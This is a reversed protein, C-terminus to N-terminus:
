YGAVFLSNYIYSKYSETLQKDECDDLKGHCLYRMAVNAKYFDSMSIAAKELILGGLFSIDTLAANKMEFAYNSTITYQTIYEPNKYDFRYGGAWPLGPQHDGFYIFLLPSEVQKIYDIFALTASNLQDIRQLYDSFQGSFNSDNTKELIRYKDPTDVAYPGHEAMSLVFIFRPKDSKKALIVKTYELMARSPIAWLNSNKPADHGLDQPQFFHHLGFQKYSPGANYNGFGMPSLVITEYGARIVEKILNTKIHPVVSYFVANKNLGFDDTDLGTFLSFESLWTKGGYTQVRLLGSNAQNFMSLDPLGTMDFRYHHFDFTSEQLFVVIDPQKTLRPKPDANFSKVKELFYDSSADIRPPQYAISQSSFCLNSITGKGKPLSSQWIKQLATEQCIVWNILFCLIATLLSLIQTSRGVKKNKRFLFGNMVVFCILGVVSAMAFPYHILTELNQIDSAVYFDSFFLREKFYHVKLQNLLQIGIILTSSIALSLLPRRTLFLLISFIVFFTSYGLLTFLTFNLGDGSIILASVLLITLYVLKLFMIFFVNNVRKIM